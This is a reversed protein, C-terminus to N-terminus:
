SLHNVNLSVKILLLACTISSLHVLKLFRNKLMLLFVFYLREQNTTWIELLREILHINKMGNIKRKTGNAVM